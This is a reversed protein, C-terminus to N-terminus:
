DKYKWEIVEIVEIVECDFTRKYPTKEPKGAKFLHLKGKIKVLRDHDQPQEMNIPYVVIVQETREGNEVLDLYAQHEEGVTSKVVLPHQNEVKPLFGVKEVFLADEAKKQTNCGLSLVLSLIIFLRKM